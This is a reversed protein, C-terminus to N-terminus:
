VDPLFRLFPDSLSEKSHEASCLLSDNDSGVLEAL